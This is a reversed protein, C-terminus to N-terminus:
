KGGSATACSVDVGDREMVGLLWRAFRSGREQRGIAWKTLVDDDKPIMLRGGAEGRRLLVKLISESERGQRTALHILAVPIDPCASSKGDLGHRRTSSACQDHIQLLLQLAPHHHDRIATALGLLLTPEDALPPATKNPNSSPSSSNWLLTLFDFPHSTHHTTNPNPHWSAPNLLRPPFKYMNLSRHDIGHHKIRFDSDTEFPWSVSTTANSDGHIAPPDGPPPLLSRAPQHPGSGDQAPPAELGWEGGEHEEHWLQVTVLRMLTPLCQQIRAMTCWRSQLVAMQLRSREEDSLVRYSAPDFHKQEVPHQRDDDFFAFLILVRYISEKSLTKGLLPLAHMMNIELSHLFICELLEIPLRELWSQEKPQFAPRPPVIKRKKSRLDSAAKM